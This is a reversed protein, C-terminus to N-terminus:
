ILSSGLIDFVYCRIYIPPQNSFDPIGPEIDPLMPRAHRDEVPSIIYGLGIIDSLDLGHVIRLAPNM